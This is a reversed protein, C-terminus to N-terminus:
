RKPAGCQIFWGWWLGGRRPDPLAVTLSGAAQGDMIPQHNWTEKPFILSLFWWFHSDIPFFMWSRERWRRRLSDSGFANKQPTQKMTEKRFDHNRQSFSGHIHIKSCTLNSKARLSTALILNAVQFDVPVNQRSALMLLCLILLILYYFIYRTFKNKRQDLM